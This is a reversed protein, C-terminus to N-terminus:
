NVKAREILPQTGRKAIDALLQLVTEVCANVDALLYKDKLYTFNFRLAGSWDIGDRPGRFWVALAGDIKSEVKWVPCGHMTARHRELNELVDQEFDRHIGGVALGLERM